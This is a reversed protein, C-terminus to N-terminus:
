IDLCYGWLRMRINVYMYAHWGVQAPLYTANRYTPLHICLPGSIYTDSHITYFKDM